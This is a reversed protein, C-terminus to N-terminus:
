NFRRVALRAIAPGEFHMDDLRHALQHGFGQNIMSHPKYVLARLNNPTPRSLRAFTATSTPQKIHAFHAMGSPGYAFTLRALQDAENDSPTPDSRSAQARPEPLPATDLSSALSAQQQEIAQAPGSKNANERPSDSPLTSLFTNGASAYAFRNPTPEEKSGVMQALMAKSNQTPTQPLVAVLTEDAQPQTSNQERARPLSAMQVPEIAEVPTSAREQAPQEIVAANPQTTDVTNDTQQADPQQQAPLPATEASALQYRVGILTEPRTRPLSAFQIPASEPTQDTETTTEDVATDTNTDATPEAEALSITTSEVLRVRPLTSLSQPLLLAQASPSEELLEDAVAEPDSNGLPEDNSFQPKPPEKPTQRLLTQLLGGKSEEEKRALSAVQTRTLNKKPAAPAASAYQTFRRVSRTSRAMEAKRKDVMVKAQKYGSFPKGDTPVHVTVGDPFVKALQKRTMRPWHRVNGTDIHIFRSGPYYGVGGAQMQLGVRRITALPVGPLYFDMAQGMTHRSNKAVGKSRSRLMGNTAPSRYGSFVTIPQKAGTKKYVEWILDFLAPDMETKENRRWDRLFQNLKRLGDADFKGNRKYTITATEKTHANSLRLSRSSANAQSAMMLMLVCLLVFLGALAHGSLLSFPSKASHSAKTTPRSRTLFSAQRAM